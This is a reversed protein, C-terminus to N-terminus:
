LPRQIKLVEELATQMLSTLNLPDDPLWTNKFIGEVYLQEAKEFHNHQKFYNGMMYLGMISQRIKTLKDQALKSPNLKHIPWAATMYFGLTVVADENTHDLWALPDVASNNDKTNNRKIKQMLLYERAWALKYMIDPITTIDHCAFLSQTYLEVLLEYNRASGLLMEKKALELYDTATLEKLSEQNTREKNDILEEKQIIESSEPDNKPQTSEALTNKEKPQKKKKKNKYYEEQQREELAQIKSEFFELAKIKKTIIRQELDQDIQDYAVNNKYELIKDYNAAYRDRLHVYEAKTKHTSMDTSLVSDIMHEFALPHNYDQVALNIKELRKQSTEFFASEYLCTGLINNLYDKQGPTTPTQKKALDIANNYYTLANNTHKQHAYINALCYYIEIIIEDEKLLSSGLAKNFDTIIKESLTLAKAQLLTDTTYLPDRLIEQYQKYQEKTNNFVTLPEQKKLEKERIAEELLELDRQEQEEQKKKELVKREKKRKNHETKKTRQDEATKKLEIKQAEKKEYELDLIKKREQALQKDKKAQEQRAIEKEQKKEEALRAYELAIEQEHIKKEAELQNNIKEQADKKPLETSSALSTQAVHEQQTATDRNTALPIIEPSKIITPTPGPIKQTEQIALPLSSQLHQQPQAQPCTVHQSLLQAQQQSLDDITIDPCHHWNTHLYCYANNLIWFNPDLYTQTTLYAQYFLQTKATLAEINNTNIAIETNIALAQHAFIDPNNSLILMLSENTPKQNKNLLNKLEFAKPTGLNAQEQIKVWSDLLQVRNDTSSQSQMAWVATPNYTSILVFLSLVLSKNSMLALITSKLLRLRLKVFNKM